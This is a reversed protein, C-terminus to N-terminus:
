RDRYDREDRREDWRDREDRRDRYDREDWREDRRERYDREDRRDDWREDRRERYDREDRREDRERFNYEGSHVYEEEEHEHEDKHKGGFAKGFLTKLGSQLDHAVGKLDDASDDMAGKFDSAINQFISSSKQKAISLREDYRSVPLNRQIGFSDQIRRLLLEQERSLSRPMQISIQVIFDGIRGSQPNRAGGGAFRFLEGDKTGVEMHVEVDSRLGEVKITEGLAAQTFLVPVELFINDNSRMFHEDEEVEVEIFLDGNENRGENGKGSLRLRMGNTIGEPLKFSVKTKETGFGRGLCRECPEEVVAGTGNCNPCTQEVQGHNQQFRFAGAGGCRPCAKLEGNRSGIGGCVHCSCKRNFVIEKDCGFFAEKFSIQIVVGANLDFRDATKPKATNSKTRGSFGFFDNFLDEFDFGGNFGGSSLGESGHRDYITRKEDDSLVSYAESVEKFREEAEKDGGNRDPHYKLALKRYAQKIQSTDADKPVGLIEYYDM